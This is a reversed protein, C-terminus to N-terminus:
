NGGVVLGGNEATKSTDSPATQTSTTTTKTSDSDTRNGGVVLGGNLSAGSPGMPDGGADGCAAFVILLSFAPVIRTWRM